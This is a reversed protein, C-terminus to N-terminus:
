AKGWRKAMHRMQTFRSAESQKDYLEQLGLWYRTTTRFRIALRVAFPQTVSQKGTLLNRLATPSVAISDALDDITIPPEFANMYVEALVEGPHIPNNSQDRMM